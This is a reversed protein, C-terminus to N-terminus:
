VDITSYEELSQEITSEEKKKHLNLKAHHGRHCKEHSLALNEPDDDNHDGNMHHVTIKLPDSEVLLNHCFFCKVKYMRLM